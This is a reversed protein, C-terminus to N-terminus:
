LIRLQELFYLGDLLVIRHLRPLLIDLLNDRVDIDFEKGERKEKADKIASADSQVFIEFPDYVSHAIEGLPLLVKRDNSPLGRRREDSKKRAAEACELLVAQTLARQDTSFKGAGKWRAEQTKPIFSGKVTKPDEGNQHFGGLLEGGRKAGITEVRCAGAGRERHDIRRRPILNGGRAFQASSISLQEVKRDIRSYRGGHTGAELCSKVFELFFHRM